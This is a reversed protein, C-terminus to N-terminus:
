KTDQPRAAAAAAAVVVADSAGVVIVVFTSIALWLACGCLVGDLLTKLAASVSSIGNRQRMIQRSEEHRETKERKKESTANVMQIKDAERIEKPETRRPGLTLPPFYYVCVCVCLELCDTTVTAMKMIIMM